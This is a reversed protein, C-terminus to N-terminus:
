TTSKLKSIRTIEELAKELYPFKNPFNNWRDLINYIWFIRLTSNQTKLKSNQALYKVIDFNDEIFIIRNVKYKHIIESIDEVVKRSSKSRWIMKHFNLAYCFGCRHPCGRSSEYDFMDPYYKKLDILDYAPLDLSTLDIFKAEEWIKKINEGKEISKLLKAFAFEGEGKVIADVFKSKLSQESFLSIHVGGWVIPIESNQERVLKAVELGVKIPEGSMSSIGVCFYKSYDFNSYDQVRTDLIDCIYNFKRLYSALVMVSIPFRPINAKKGAYVLLIKKNM